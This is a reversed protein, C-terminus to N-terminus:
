NINDPIKLSQGIRLERSKLNNVKLIESMKVNYKKSLRILSEGRKVKHQIYDESAIDRTKLSEAKKSVKEIKESKQISSPARKGVKSYPLPVKIVQGVRLAKPSRINNLKL